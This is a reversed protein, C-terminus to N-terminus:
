DTTVTAALVACVLGTFTVEEDPTPKYGHETSMIDDKLLTYEKESLTLTYTKM